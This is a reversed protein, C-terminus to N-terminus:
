QQGTQEVGVYRLLGRVFRLEADVPEALWGSETVEAHATDPIRVLLGGVQGFFFAAVLIPVIFSYAFMERADSVQSSNALVGFGAALIWIAVGAIVAYRLISKQIVM